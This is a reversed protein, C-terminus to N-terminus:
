FNCEPWARINDWDWVKPQTRVSVGWTRGPKEVFPKDAEDVGASYFLKRGIDSVRTPSMGFSSDDVFNILFFNSKCGGM